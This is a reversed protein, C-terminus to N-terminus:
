FIVTNRCIVRLGVWKYSFNEESYVHNSWNEIFFMLLSVLIPFLSLEIPLFQLFDVWMYMSNEALLGPPYIPELAFIPLFNTSPHTQTDFKPLYIPELAFIPLFKPLHIPKLLFNQYISPHTSLVKFRAYTDAWIGLVGGGPWFSVWLSCGRLRLMRSSDFLLYKFNLSVLWTKGLRGILFKHIGMKCERCVIVFECVEM